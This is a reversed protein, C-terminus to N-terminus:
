GADANTEQRLVLLRACKMTPSSRDMSIVQLAAISPYLKKRFAALVRRCPAIFARAFGM